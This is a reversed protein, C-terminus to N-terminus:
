NLPGNRSSLPSAHVTCFDGRSLVLSPYPIREYPNEMPAKNDGESDRVEDLLRESRMDLGAINDTDEHHRAHNATEDALAVRAERIEGVTRSLHNRVQSVHDGRVRLAIEAVARTACGHHERKEDAEGCRHHRPEYDIAALM